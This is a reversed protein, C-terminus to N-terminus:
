SSLFSEMITSYKQSLLNLLIQSYQTSVLDGCRELTFIGSFYVLGLDAFCNWGFGFAAHAPPWLRVSRALCGVAPLVDVPVHYAASVGESFFISPSVSLLYVVLHPTGM